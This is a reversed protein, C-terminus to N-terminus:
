CVGSVSSAKQHPYCGRLKKDAEIHCPRCLYLLNDPHNIVKINKNERVPIKHHVDMCKHVGGCSECVGKARFRVIKKVSEWKDRYAEQSYGGSWNYVDEGKPCNDAFWEQFCKKSCFHHKCYEKFNGAPREFKNGCYHCKEIRRNQPRKGHNPSKNYCGRSCHKRKNSPYDFFEKGCIICSKKIKRNGWRNTLYCDMSCFNPQKKLGFRPHFVKGCHKCVINIKNNFNEM